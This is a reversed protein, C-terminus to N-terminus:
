GVIRDGKLDEAARGRGLRRGGQAGLLCVSRQKAGSGVEQFASRHKDAGYGSTLQTRANGEHESVRVCLLKTPNTQFFGQAVLLLIEEQKM